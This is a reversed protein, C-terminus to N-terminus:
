IVFPLKRTWIQPKKTEFSHRGKSCVLRWRKRVNKVRWRMAPLFVLGFTLFFGKVDSKFKLVVILITTIEWQFSSSIVCFFVEFSNDYCTSVIGNHVLIFCVNVLLVKSACWFVKKNTKSKSYLFLSLSFLFFFLIHCRM